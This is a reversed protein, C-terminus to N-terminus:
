QGDFVLAARRLTEPALLVRAPHAPGVEAYPGVRLWSAHPAQANHLLARAARCADPSYCACYELRASAATCALLAAVVGRGIETSLATAQLNGLADEDPNLACAALLFFACGRLSLASAFGVRGSGMLGELEEEARTLPSESHLRHLSYTRLLHAELAQHENCVATADLRWKPRESTHSFYQLITALAASHPALSQFKHSLMLIAAVARRSSYDLGAGDSEFRRPDMEYDLYNEAQRLLLLATFCVGLPDQIGECFVEAGEDVVPRASIAGLNHLEVYKAILYCQAALLLPRPRREPVVSCPSAEGGPPRIEEPPRRLAGM